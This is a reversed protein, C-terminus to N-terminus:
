QKKEKKTNQNNIDKSTESSAQQYFGKEPPEASPKISRQENEKMCYMEKVVNQM